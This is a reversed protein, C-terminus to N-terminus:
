CIEGARVAGDRTSAVDPSPHNTLWARLAGEVRSTSRGHRRLALTSLALARTSPHSGAQEELYTSATDCSPRM